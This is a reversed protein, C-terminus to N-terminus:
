TLADDLNTPQQEIKKNMLCNINKDPVYLIKVLHPNPYVTREHSQNDQNPLKLM